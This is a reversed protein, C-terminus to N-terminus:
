YLLLGGKLVSRDTGFLVQVINKRHVTGAVTERGGDLCNENLIREIKSKSTMEPSVVCQTM